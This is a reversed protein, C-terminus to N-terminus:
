PKSGPPAICTNSHLLTQQIFDAVSAVDNLDLLPCPVSVKRDSAVAIIHPDNLALPQQHLHARFVEIKAIPHQKFGEVLILDCQATDFQQLLYHLSQQESLASATHSILAWQAANGVLTQVAGAQQMLYSDKGAQDIQIAHHTHKLVSVRVGRQQLLAILRCILTTKGSNSTQACVGLVPITQESM